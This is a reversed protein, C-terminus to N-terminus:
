KKGLIKIDDTTSAFLSSSIVGLVLGYFAGKIGEQAITLNELTNVYGEVEEETNGTEKALKKIDSPKDKRRRRISVIKIISTISAGLLAGLPVIYKLSNSALFSM